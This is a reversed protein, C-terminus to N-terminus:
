VEAEGEPGAGGVAVVATLSDNRLRADAVGERDFLKVSFPGERADETDLFGEGDKKGEQVAVCVEVAEAVEGEVEWFVVWHGGVVAEEGVEAHEAPEPGRHKM